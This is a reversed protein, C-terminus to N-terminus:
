KNAEVKEEDALKPKAMIVGDPLPGGTWIVERVTETIKGGHGNDLPTALKAKVANIVDLTNEGSRMVIIGGVVEGRGDLEVLGRVSAM